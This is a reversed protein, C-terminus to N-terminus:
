RRQKVNFEQQNLATLKYESTPRSQRSNRRDMSVKRNSIHKHSLNMASFPRIAKYNKIIELQSSSQADSNLTALADPQSNLRYGIGYGPEANNTLSFLESQEIPEQSKQRKHTSYYIPNETWKEIITKKGIVNKVQAQDKSSEIQSELEKIEKIKRRLASSQARKKKTTKHKKCKIKSSDSYLCYAIHFRGQEPEEELVKFKNQNYTKDLVWKDLTHVTRNFSFKSYASMPRRSKLVTRNLFSAPEVRYDADHKNMFPEYDKLVTNEEIKVLNETPEFMELWEVPLANSNFYWNDPFFVSNYEWLDLKETQIEQDFKFGAKTKLYFPEIHKSMCYMYVNISEMQVIHAMSKDFKFFPDYKFDKNILLLSLKGSAITDKWNEGDTLRFEITTNKIFKDINYNETFFYHVRLKNCRVATMDEIHNNELLKNQTNRKKSSLHHVKSKSRRQLYYDELNEIFSQKIKVESKNRNPRIARKKKRPTVYRSESGIEEKKSLLHEYDVKFRTINNAWNLQIYLGNKPKYSEIIKELQVDKMVDLYFMLRWQKLKWKFIDSTIHNDNAVIEKEKNLDEVPIGQMRAFKEETRILEHEAIIIEYCLECVKCTRKTDKFRTFNDFKFIGRKNYHLRLESIMKM